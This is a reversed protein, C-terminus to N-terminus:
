DSEIEVGKADVYSDQVCGLSWSTEDSPRAIPISECDFNLSTASDPFGGGPFAFLHM